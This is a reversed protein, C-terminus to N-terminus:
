PIRNFRNGQVAAKRAHRRELAAILLLEACGRDRAIRGGSRSRRPRTPFTVGFSRQGFPVSALGPTNRYEQLRSAGIEFNLYSCAHGKSDFDEVFGDGCLDGGKRGIHLRSKDPKGLANRRNPQFAQAFRM